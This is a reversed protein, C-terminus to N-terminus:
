VMILTCHDVALIICQADHTRSMLDRSLVIYPAGRISYINRMHIAKFVSPVSYSTLRAVVLCDTQTRIGGRMAQIYTRQTSVPLGLLIGITVLWTTM